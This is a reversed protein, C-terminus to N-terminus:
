NACCALLNDIIADVGMTVPDLCPLGLRGGIERCVALAESAGLNSTNLAVGVAKVNPNTLRAAALNTELCLKLDPMPYDPLGRMHKRGAEHCLVLADAQAGHLLGLSVGAYSPHFLSGQGEILDWGGDDRAPSLWEAGGSIFDAVVSDIPIGGGAVFIGTQGTARFDAVLGRKRM